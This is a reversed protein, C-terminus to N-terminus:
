RKKPPRGPGRKPPEDSVPAEVSQQPEIKVPKDAKVGGNKATPIRGAMSKSGKVKVGDTTTINTLQHFYKLANMGNNLTLQSMLDWLEFTEALRNTVIKLLRSKDINDLLSIDIYHVAGEPTRKMIACEIFVGDNNLDLFEIHPYKESKHTKLM